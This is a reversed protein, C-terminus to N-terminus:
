AVRWCDVTRGYPSVVQGAKVLQDRCGNRISCISQLPLGLHEAAQHDSYSGTALLALYRATQKGRTKEVAIAAQYSTHSGRAFPLNQETYPM